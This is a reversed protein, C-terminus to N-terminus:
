FIIMFLIKLIMYHFWLVIGITFASLLFRLIKWEIVIKYFELLCKVGYMIGLYVMLAFCGLIIMVIYFM